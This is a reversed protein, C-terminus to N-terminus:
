KLQKEFFRLLHALTAARNDRKASGHGEDAFIILESALGRKTLVDHIQVAEGAPVRPDNLGQIIMLPAKVKGIHTIPSLEVLAERDKVPDGYESIRLHRRYPATNNLFTILNSMGVIAAGADYAGAFKTMGYLTSYGGYSGGTIGIKPAHGGVAYKKKLAASADEIDTIVKLRKPGDDAGLWTKGYGDSGRVNPEVFVFGADVFAQAYPSFGPTAQSEPGGHFDVVVPCPAPRCKAPEYVFMPIKAGDRADYYELKARSFRTTDVEPTQPDMWKRFSGTIWDKVFIMRPATATEVGVVAYRGDRSVRTVYVHDAEPLRAMTEPKLNRADLVELTRYGRDNWGVYIRRRAHDITFDAVDKKVDGTIPTFKGDKLLYLRRFDGFKPTSVLYTGAGPAFMVSYDEKEGQGLLPKLAKTRADWTYYEAWLSGTAKLLLFERDDRVDAISWTGPQDFVVEDKGSAIDYRHIAYSDPRESNARFYLSRSDDSVYLPTAQVDKRHFVARLPGGKASQLYIGPNEEGNRDRTIVIDRGNPLVAAVATVDSGATMQRAFGMPGKMRWVQPVGTLSSTYFLTEGDPSLPGSGAGRLDLLQQVRSLVAPDGPPSAFKRVIEPPVSEAGLGQYGGAATGNSTQKHSCAILSLGAVLGVAIKKM